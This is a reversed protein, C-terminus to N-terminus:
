AAIGFTSINIVHNHQTEAINFTKHTHTNFTVSSKSLLLVYSAMVSQQKVCKYLEQFCRTRM